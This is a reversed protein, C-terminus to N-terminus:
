RTKYVALELYIFVLCLCARESLSHLLDGITLRFMV